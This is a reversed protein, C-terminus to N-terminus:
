GHRVTSRCEFEDREHPEGADREQPRHRTPRVEKEEEAGFDKNRRGRSKRRLRYFCGLKATELVRSKMPLSWLDRVKGVGMLLINQM